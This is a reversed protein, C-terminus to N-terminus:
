RGFESAAFAPLAEAGIGLMGAARSVWSSLDPGKPLRLSAPNALRLLSSAGGRCHPGSPRLRRPSSAAAPSRTLPM